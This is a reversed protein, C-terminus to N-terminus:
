SGLASVLHLHVAFALLGYHEDIASNLVVDYAAQRASAYFHDANGPIIIKCGYGIVSQEYGVARAIGVHSSFCDVVQALGHRYPLRYATYAHAVLQKGLSGTRLGVLKGVSVAAVILGHTLRSGVAAEDRRLIVPKRDVVRRQGIVPLRQEDVHVVSGIFSYAVLALREKRSLEMGFSRRTGLVRLEEKIFKYIHKLSM